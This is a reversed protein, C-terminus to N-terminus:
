VGLWGLWVCLICLLINITNFRVCDIRQVNARFMNYDHGLGTGPVLENLVLFRCFVEYDYPFGRGNNVTKFAQPRHHCMKTTLALGQDQVFFSAIDGEAM